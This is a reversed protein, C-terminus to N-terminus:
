APADATDNIPGDVTVGYWKLAALVRPNCDVADTAILLKEYLASLHKECTREHIDLLQAIQKTVLGQAVLAWIERERPTLSESLVESNPKVRADVYFWGEAVTRIAQVVERVPSDKLLYGTRHPHGRQVLIDNFFSPRSYQSLIIIGIDPQAAVAKLAVDLGTKGVPPMEIDLVAVAPRHAAILAAAQECDEATGVVRMDPQEDLLKRFGERLVPHDDAIVITIPPTTM